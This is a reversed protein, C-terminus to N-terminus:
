SSTRCSTESNITVTVSEDNPLAIRCPPTTFWTKTSNTGDSFGFEVYASPDNQLNDAIFNNIRQIIYPLNTPMGELSYHNNPISSHIKFSFYGTNTSVQNIYFSGTPSPGAITTMSFFVIMLTSVITTANKM